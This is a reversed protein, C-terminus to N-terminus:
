YSEGKAPYGLSHPRHGLLDKSAVLHLLVGVPRM